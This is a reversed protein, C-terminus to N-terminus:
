AFQQRAAHHNHGSYEDRRLLMAVLMSPLMAAHEIGMASWFDVAGGAMLAVVAFTPLFMSAAMEANPRWGHGRYRMWAVMPVTMVFAMGLLMLAPAERELESTSSGFALLAGEAPLGLLVMGLFMAIVMEVYHRVFHVTPSNKFRHLGM